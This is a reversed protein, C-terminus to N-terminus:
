FTASMLGLCVLPTINDIRSSVSPFGRCLVRLQFRLCMADTSHTRYSYATCHVKIFRTIYLNSLTVFCAPETDRNSHKGNKVTTVNKPRPSPKIKQYSVESEEIYSYVKGRIRSIHLIYHAGLLIGIYIWCSAVNCLKNM